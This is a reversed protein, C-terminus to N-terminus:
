SMSIWICAPACGAAAAGGRPRGCRGSGGRWAAGGTLPAAGEALGCPRSRPASLSGQAPPLRALVSPLLLPPHTAPPQTHQHPLLLHDLLPSYVSTSGGPSDRHTHTCASSSTTPSCLPPLAPSASPPTRQAGKVRRLRERSGERARKM